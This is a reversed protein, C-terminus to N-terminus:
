ASLLDLVAPRPSPRDGLLRGLAVSAVLAPHLLALPSSELHYVSGMTANARRDGQVARRGVQGAWASVAAQGVSQRGASSPMRVDEGTAVAWPLDAARDLQRLLRRAGAPRHGAGLAARLRLAQLASVTIGQGYVPDFCCLADGVVLLGDPWGSVEAYRHRRNATQRHVAVPGVRDGSHLLAAVAPDRLAALFDALGDPDRPPRREDGFGIGTVLWRRGEIPLALGGVPSQPIAQVVVGPMERPDPGGVVVQTAYGMRADVTRPEPTSVGIEALWRRLRSSRGTADVVLPTTVDSDGAVVRWGTGDRRLGDVHADWRIEVGPLCRVRERVVHEFLPRSLSVLDYSRQPRLWGHEGLWPLLGTDIRVAGAGLLEERLGPVLEEGARLGRHLLVHPQAGQPVGARQQAGDPERDRDLVLVRAGAGSAAAATWLGALSAGLVVVDSV